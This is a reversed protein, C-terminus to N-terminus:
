QEVLPKRRTFERLISPMLFLPEILYRRYLTKPRTLLRYLWEFGLQGIWRPPAKQLGMLYELAAGCPLFVHTTIHNRAELIWREQRPMGMGSLIVHPQFEEIEKYVTTRAAIEDFGHHARLQLGPFRPLLTDPILDIMSQPGGIFYIRWHKEAAMRLFDEFWNLYTTRHDRTLPIGLLQGLLVMSMGDVHTYTNEQYFRQMLPTRQLLYLSHLNHNGLISNKAPAAVIHEITDLVDKNTMPQVRMGLFHYTPLMM